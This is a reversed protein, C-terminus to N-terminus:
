SLIDSKKDRLQAEKNIKTDLNQLNAETLRDNKLFRAVENDIYKNLQPKDGYKVKFKNVLM